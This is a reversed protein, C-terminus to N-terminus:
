VREVTTQHVSKQSQKLRSRQRCIRGFYPVKSSLQRSIGELHSLSRTPPSSFSFFFRIVFLGWAAEERPSHQIVKQRAPIHQSTHQTRHLTYAGVQLYTGGESPLTISYMESPLHLYLQPGNNGPRYVSLPLTFATNRRM